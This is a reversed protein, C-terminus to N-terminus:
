LIIYYLVIYYLIIYYLIHIIHIYIYAITFTKFHWLAPHISAVPRLPISLSRSLCRWFEGICCSNITDISILLIIYDYHCTGHICTRQFLNGEGFNVYVTFTKKKSRYIQLLTNHTCLFQTKGWWWFGYVLGCIWEFVDMSCFYFCRCAEESM